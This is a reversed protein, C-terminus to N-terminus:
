SSKVYWKCIDHAGELRGAWELLTLATPEHGSSAGVLHLGVGLGTGRRGRGLGLAMSRSPDGLRGRPRGLGIAMSGIPFGLSHRPRWQGHGIILQSMAMGVGVLHM